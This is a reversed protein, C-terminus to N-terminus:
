VNEVGLENKQKLFAVHMGRQYIAITPVKNNLNRNLTGKKQSWGEMYGGVCHERMGQSTLISVRAHGGVCHERM